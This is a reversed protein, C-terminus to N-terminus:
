PPTTLHLHYVDYRATGNSALRIAYVHAEDIFGSVVPDFRESAVVTHRQLDLLEIRADFVGEPKEVGVYSGEPGERQTLGTRWHEDAVVSLAWLRGDSTKMLAGLIPRPEEERTLSRMGEYSAFWKADRVFTRLLVGDLTWQEIKYAQHYAAYLTSDILAMPRDLLERSNRYSITGSPQGFSRLVQGDRDVVHFPMGYAEPTSVIGNFLTTRATLGLYGNPYLRVPLPTTRVPDYTTNLLVQRMGPGDFVLVSDPGVAILGRIWRFEGPGDGERGVTQLFRGTSDFVVLSSPDFTNVAYFRSRQDRVFVANMGLVGPGDNDGVTLEHTLVIRCRRCEPDSPIRVTEQAWSARGMVTLVIVLALQLLATTAHRPDASAVHSPHSVRAGPEDHHCSTAAVTTTVPRRIRFRFTM